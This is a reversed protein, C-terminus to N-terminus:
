KQILFAQMFRQTVNEINISKEIIALSKQGM